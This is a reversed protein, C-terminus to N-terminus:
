APAHSIAATSYLYASVHMPISAAITCGWQRVLLNFRLVSIQGRRDLALIDALICWLVYPYLGRYHTFLGRRRKKGAFREM